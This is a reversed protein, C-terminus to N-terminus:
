LGRDLESVLKAARERVLPSPHGRLPAVADRVHRRHEAGGPGRVLDGCAGLLAKAVPDRPKGTLAKAILPLVEKAREPSTSGWRGLVTYVMEALEPKPRKTLVHELAVVGAGDLTDPRLRVLEALSRLIAEALRSDAGGAIAAVFAPAHPALAEVHTPALDALAEAAGARVNPKEHALLPIVRPLLTADIAVTDSLIKAGGKSGNIARQVFADVPDDPVKSEREVPVRFRPLPDCKLKDLLRRAM